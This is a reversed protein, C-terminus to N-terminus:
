IYKQLFDNNKHLIETIIDTEITNKKEKKWSGNRNNSDNGKNNENRNNSDNGRNNWTYHNNCFKM